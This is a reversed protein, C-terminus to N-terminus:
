KLFLNQLDLFFHLAATRDAATLLSVRTHSSRIPNQKKPILPFVCFPAERRGGGKGGKGGGKKPWFVLSRYRGGPSGNV